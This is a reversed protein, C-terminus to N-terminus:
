CAMYLQDNKNKGMNNNFIYFDILPPPLLCTGRPDAPAHRLHRSVPINEDLKAILM